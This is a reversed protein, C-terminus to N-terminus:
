TLDWRGATQEGLHRKCSSAETPDLRHQPCLGRSPPPTKQCQAGPLTQTSRHIDRDESGGLDRSVSPSAEGADPGAFPSWMPESCCLSPQTFHGHGEGRAKEERGGAWGGKMDRGVGIEKGKGM